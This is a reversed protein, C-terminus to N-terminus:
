DLQKLTVHTATAPLLAAVRTYMWYSLVVVVPHPLALLFEAVGATACAGRVTLEQLQLFTRSAEQWYADKDHYAFVYLSHISGVPVGCEELLLLFAATTPCDVLSLKYTCGGHFCAHRLVPALAHLAARLEAEDTLECITFMLTGVHVRDLGAAVPLPSAPPAAVAAVGRRIQVVVEDVHVDVNPCVALFKELDDVAVRGFNAHHLNFATASSAVTPPM